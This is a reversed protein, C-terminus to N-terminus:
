FFTLLLFSLGLSFGLVDGLYCANYGNLLQEDDVGEWGESGEWSGNNIMGCDVDM